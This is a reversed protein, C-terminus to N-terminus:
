FENKAVKGTTKGAQGTQLFKSSKRGIFGFGEGWSTGTGNGPGLGALAAEKAGSMGM